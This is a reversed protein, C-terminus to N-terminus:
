AAQFDGKTSIVRKLEELSIFEDVKHYLIKSVSTKSAIVTVKVQRQQMKKIVPFFDGDGSILVLRDGAQLEDLIDIAMAIDDGVTKHTGDSHTRKPLTDVMYGLRNLHFHFGRSTQCAGDYFNLKIKGNDPMLFSKLAQYDVNLNLQYANCKFNNGDIYVHTTPQQKILQATIKNTKRSNNSKTKFLPSRKDNKERTKLKHKLKDVTSRINDIQKGRNNLLRELKYLLEIAGDLKQVDFDVEVPKVLKEGLDEISSSLSKVESSISQWQVSHNKACNSVKKDTEHQKILGMALFAGLGLDKIQPKQAIAGVVFLSGAAAVVANTINIKM